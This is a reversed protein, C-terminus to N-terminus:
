GRLWWPLVIHIYLRKPLIFMGYGNSCLSPGFCIISILIMHIWFISVDNHVEKIMSSPPCHKQPPGGLTTVTKIFSLFSPLYLIWALTKFSFPSKTCSFTHFIAERSSLTFTLVKRSFLSLNSLDWIGSSTNPRALPQAYQRGSIQPWLPLHHLTPLPTM